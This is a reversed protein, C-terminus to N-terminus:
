GTPLRVAFVTDQGPASRATIQGGHAEVLERVIALGLGSGRREASAARSKDVQYFREFIRSLEEQPIGRGNDQVVTEVQGDSLLYLALRVQGGAPTHSLANDLLNAFIQTLRDRDGMVQPAQQLALILDVGKERARPEFSDKVESLLQGLDVPQRALELQGSEMRALDLLQKVM